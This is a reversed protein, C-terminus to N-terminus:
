WRTGPEDVPIHEGAVKATTYAVQLQASAGDLVNEVVAKVGVSRHYRIFWRSLSIQRLKLLVLYRLLFLNRSGVIGLALYSHVTHILKVGVQSWHEGAVRTWDPPTCAGPATHVSGAVRPVRSSGPISESYISKGVNVEELESKMGRRTIERVDANSAASRANLRRGEKPKRKEVIDAAAM